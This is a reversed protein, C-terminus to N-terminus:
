TRRGTLTGPGSRIAASDCKVLMLNESDTVAFAGTTGGIYVNQQDDVAVARGLSFGQGPFRRVWATDGNPRYKVVVTAWPIAWYLGSTGVVYINNDRDCAIGEAFAPFRPTVVARRAWLTEGAPNYKITAIDASWMNGPISEISGTVIINDENDVVLAVATDNGHFPSDYFSEWQLAVAASARSGLGAVVALVVFWAIHSMRRMM